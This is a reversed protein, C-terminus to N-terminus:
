NIQPFMMFFTHTFLLGYKHIRVGLCKGEWVETWHAGTLENPAFFRM